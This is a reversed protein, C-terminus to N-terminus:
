TYNKRSHKVKLLTMQLDAIKEAPLTMKMTCTDLVIGLFTLRQKPGEVKSNNIWFGLRRLVKILTHLASQCREFSPEIILFDDLYAVIQQYGYNASMIARVSQTLEHFIEPSKSAGFPLRTDVMITPHTAGPFTYQLGTAKYNSPHIKVVRYAQALDIKALFCGPTIADIAHQLKQYKFPNRTVHENLANGRPRSCDHILRVQRPDKKPLAGLASIIHPRESM